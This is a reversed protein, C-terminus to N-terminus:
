RKKKVDVLPALGLLETGAAVTRRRGVGQGASDSAGKLEALQRENEALRTRLEEVERRQRSSNRGRRWAAPLTLLVAMVAGGAFSLLLVLALTSEIHWLFMTITM